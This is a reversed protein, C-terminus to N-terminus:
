DQASIQFQTVQGMVWERVEEAPREPKVIRGSQLSPKLIEARTGGCPCDLASTWDPMGPPVIHPYDHPVLVTDMCEPCRLLQKRGSLKGRKTFPKGEIEVIDLALDITRANSIATGVGYGDCHPNLNVIDCEDIGGSVYLKVHGFGRLDLEWRVEDLIKAMNGRRSGPTDLRVGALKDGIAEAAALSEFKEDCLTDVLAIRPIDPDIIEDFSRVAEQVGGLMLILAHPMTGSPRIGLLDAGLVTSVGDCGGVYANREIVPALAPHMRRAGFSVVQRDGAAAKCRAAKTAIGSQQCLYGLIATELVCFDLYDGTIQLVPDGARFITGEDLAEAELDRGKLLSLADHMGAVVAWEYGEPLSSAKVDATVHKHVGLAELIQRTREFYIDTTAGSRIEEDTATRM